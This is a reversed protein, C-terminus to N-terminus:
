ANTSTFSVSMKWEGLKMRIYGPIVRSHAKKGTRQEWVKM